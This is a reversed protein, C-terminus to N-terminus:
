FVKKIYDIANGIDKIETALYRMKSYQRALSLLNKAVNSYKSSLSCLHKKTSPNYKVRVECASGSQLIISDLIKDTSMSVIYKSSKENYSFWLETNENKFIDRHPTILKKEFGEAEIGKIIKEDLLVIEILKDMTKLILDLRFLKYAKRTKLAIMQTHTTAHDRFFAVVRELM